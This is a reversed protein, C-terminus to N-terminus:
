TGKPKSPRGLLYLATDVDLPKWDHGAGSRGQRAVRRAPDALCGTHVEGPRAAYAKRLAVPPEGDLQLDRALRRTLRSPLQEWRFRYRPM